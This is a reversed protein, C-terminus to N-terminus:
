QEVETWDSELNKTELFFTKGIDQLRSSERVEVRHGKTTERGGRGYVIHDEPHKLEVVTGATNHTYFKAQEDNM